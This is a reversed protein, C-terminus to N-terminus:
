YILVPKLGVPVQHSLITHINGDLDAWFAYSNSVTQNVTSCSGGSCTQSDDWMVLAHTGGSFTLKGTYITGSGGNTPAQTVTSGQGVTWLYVQEYATGTKDLTAGPGGPNNLLGYYPSYDYGFWVVGSVGRDMFNLFYQALFAASQDEDGSSSGVGNNSGETSWVPESGIGAATAMAEVRQVVNPVNAAACGGATSQTPDPALYSHFGVIDASQSGPTQGGIPWELYQQFTSCGPTSTLTCTAPNGGGILWETSTSCASNAASWPPTLVYVNGSTDLSHVTTYLDACMEQLQGYTGSWSGSINPENWCEWYKIHYGETTAHNYVATIFTKWYNDGSGLDSPPANNGAGGNAWSPTHYVTYMIEEGDGAAQLAYADLKTWTYTGNSTEIQDWNTNAGLSRWVGFYLGLDDPWPEGTNYWKNIDFGFFSRNIAQQAHATPSAALMSIVALLVGLSMQALMNRTKM